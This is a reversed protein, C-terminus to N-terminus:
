IHGFFIYISPAIIAVLSSAVFLGGALEFLFSKNTNQRAVVEFSKHAQESVVAGCALAAEYDSLCAAEWLEVGYNHVITQNMVARKQQHTTNM